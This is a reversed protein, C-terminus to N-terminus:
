EGILRCNPSGPAPGLRAPLLAPAPSPRNLALCPVLHKITPSTLSYEASLIASYSTQIGPAAGHPRTKVPRTVPFDTDLLYHSASDSLRAQACRRIAMTQVMPRAASRGFAWAGLKGVSAVDQGSCISRRGIARGLHPRARCSAPPVTRRAPCPNRYPRSPTCPSLRRAPCPVRYPRSHACPPPRLAPDHPPAPSPPPRM